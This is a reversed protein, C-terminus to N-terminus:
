RHRNPGEVLVFVSVYILVSRQFSFCSIDLTNLMEQVMQPQYCSGRSNIFRWYCEILESVLWRKSYSM